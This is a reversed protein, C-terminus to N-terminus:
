GTLTADSGTRDGDREWVRIQWFLRDERDTLRFGNSAMVQEVAADAHIYPRFGMRIIKLALAGMSVFMKTWWRDKPYVIAVIRTSHEAARSLLSRMDPYCCIVKDLTVIDHPEIGSAVDVFDGFQYAIRDVVGQASAHERAVTQYGTSADVDTARAVGSALLSTQIVGIGGGIDLLTDGQVVRPRVSDILSRTAADAGKRSYRALDKRAGKEDFMRDVGQCHTCCTM